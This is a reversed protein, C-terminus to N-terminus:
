CKEKNILLGERQKIRLEGKEKKIKYEIIEGEENSSSALFWNGLYKLAIKHRSSSILDYHQLFNLLIFLIWFREGMM